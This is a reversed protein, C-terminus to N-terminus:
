DNGIVERLKAAYEAIIAENSANSPLGDWTDLMEALVDEITPKHYHRCQDASWTMWEKPAFEDIEGVYVMAGNTAMCYVGGDPRGYGCLEDGIQIPVGDADRPLWLHTEPDAQRLLEILMDCLGSAKPSYEGGVLADTVSFTTMKERGSELMLRDIAANIEESTM